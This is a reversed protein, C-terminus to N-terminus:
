DILLAFAVWDFCSLPDSFRVSATLASTRPDLNLERCRCPLKCSPLGVDMHMLCVHPACVYM